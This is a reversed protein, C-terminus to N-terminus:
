ARPPALRAASLLPRLLIRRHVDFGQARGTLVMNTCRCEYFAREHVCGLTGSVYPPDRAFKGAARWMEKAGGGEHPPKFRLRMMPCGILLLGAILGANARAATAFGLPGLTNNLMIPHVVGGLSSGSAVIGM